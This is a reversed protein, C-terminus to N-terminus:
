GDHRFMWENPRIAPDDGNLARLGNCRDCYASCCYPAPHGGIPTDFNPCTEPYRCEPTCPEPHAERWERCRPIAADELAARNEPTDAIYGTVGDTLRDGAHTYLTVPVERQEDM